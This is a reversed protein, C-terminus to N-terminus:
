REENKKDKIKQYLYISGLGALFIFVMIAAPIIRVYGPIHFDTENRSSEKSKGDKGSKKEPPSADRGGSNNSSPEKTASKTGSAVNKSLIPTDAAKRLSTDRKARM